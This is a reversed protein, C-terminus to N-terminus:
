ERKFMPHIESFGQEVLWCQRFHPIDIWCVVNFFFVILLKDLLASNTAGKGVRGTHESLYQPHDDGGQEEGTVVMMPILGPPVNGGKYPVHLLLLM